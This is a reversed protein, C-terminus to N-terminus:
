CVPSMALRGHGARDQGLGQRNLDKAVDQRKCGNDAARKMQVIIAQDRPNDVLKKACAGHQQILGPLEALSVSPSRLITTGDAFECSCDWGFPVNDTLKHQEFLNRMQKRSRDRIEELEWEAIPLLLTLVMRGMHGQTSITEGGLDVKHLARNHERCFELIGLGDRVNRGLRDLKAIILHGVVGTRLRNM